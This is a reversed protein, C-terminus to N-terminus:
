KLRANAASVKFYQAALAAGTSTWVADSGRFRLKEGALFSGACVAAHTGILLGMRPRGGTGSYLPNAEVGGRAAFQRTTVIDAGAAVCAAATAARRAWAWKNAAPSVGPLTLVLLAIGLTCKMIGSDYLKPRPFCAGTSLANTGNRNQFRM